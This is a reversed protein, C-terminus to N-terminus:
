QLSSNKKKDYVVVYCFRKLDLVQMQVMVIQPFSGCSFKRGKEGLCVETSLTDAELISIVEEHPIKVSICFHLEPYIQM